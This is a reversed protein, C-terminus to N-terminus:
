EDEIDELLQLGEQLEKKATRIDEYNLASIAFKAHKQIKAIAESRTVIRSVDPTKFNPGVEGGRPKAAPKAVVKPTPAKKALQDSSPPFVTITADKPVLTPDSDPLFRPTEPLEVDAGGDPLFHPAGPLKVTDFQPTVQPSEASNDDDDIFKPASPLISSADAALSEKDSSANGVAGGDTDMAAMERELEAELDREAEKSVPVADKLLQSLHYKLVKLKDRNMKGFDENDRAKGASFKAWDISSDPKNYFVSLLTMFNLCARFKAILQVRNTGDYQSLEELCSNYLKYAFEMVISLAINKDNLAARIGEGEESTDNKIAETEDLLSITYLEVTKDTAHLKLSLILELVHLKCYYSVVPSILELEAARTIFPGIQKHAKLSLPAEMPSRCHPDSANRAANAQSLAHM